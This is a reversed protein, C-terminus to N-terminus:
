GREAEEGFSPAAFLVLVPYKAQIPKEIFEVAVWALTYFPM